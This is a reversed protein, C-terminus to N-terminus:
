SKKLNEALNTFKEALNLDKFTCILIVEFIDVEYDIFATFYSFVLYFPLIMYGM